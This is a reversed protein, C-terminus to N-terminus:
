NLTVGEHEDLCNAFFTLAEQPNMGMDNAEMIEAWIRLQNVFHRTMRDFMRQEEYTM